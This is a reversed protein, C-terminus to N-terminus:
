NSGGALVLSIDSSIPFPNSSTPPFASTDQFEATSNTTYIYGSTVLYTESEEMLLTGLYIGSSDQGDYIMCGASIPSGSLSNFVYVNYGSLAQKEYITVGNVVEKTIERTGLMKKTIARTGIQTKGSIQTNPLVITLTLVDESAMAPLERVIWVSSEYTFIYDEQNITLTVSQATIDGLLVNMYNTSGAIEFDGQVTTPTSNFSLGGTFTTEVEGVISTPQGNQVANITITKTIMLPPM